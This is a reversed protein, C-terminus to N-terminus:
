AAGGTKKEKPERMRAIDFLLSALIYFGITWAYGIWTLVAVFAIGAIFSHIRIGPADPNKEFWTRDFTLGILAKFAIVYWIYAIFINGAGDIKEFRWYYASAILIVDIIITWLWQKLSKM